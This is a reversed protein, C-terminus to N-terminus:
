VKSVVRWSMLASCSDLFFLSPVIQLIKHIVDLFGGFLTKGVGGQHLEGLCEIVLLCLFLPTAM